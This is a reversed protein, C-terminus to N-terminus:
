RAVDLVYGVGRVTHILGEGLKRRLYRIYVDVVNTGPDFDMGWVRELLQTRSLVRGAEGALVCLLEFERATLEVPQGSRSVRHGAVDIELEGVTLTDAYPQRRTVSEIRALLEEFSFPKTLYDDAGGRLGAVREDVRDLASLCIAPTREGGRRLSRLLELGDGDPLMRDLIILQFEGEFYLRSAEAVSGALTVRHGAEELGRSLFRALRPTDEVVLIKM